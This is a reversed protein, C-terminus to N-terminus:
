EIQRGEIGQLELDTIMQQAEIMALDQDTIAQQLEKEKQQLLGFIVGIDQPFYYQNLEPIYEGIGPEHFKEDVYTWGPKVKGELEPPLDQFAKCVEKPYLTELPCYMGSRLCDEIKLVRTGKIYAYKM